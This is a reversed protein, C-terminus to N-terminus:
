VRFCTGLALRSRVRAANVVRASGKAGAAARNEATVEVSWVRFGVGWVGCGVGWVGCGVGWMGPARNEATLGSGKM